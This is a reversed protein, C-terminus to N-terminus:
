PFGGAILDVHEAPPSGQADGGVRPVPANHKHWEHHCPQCLWRVALPKNYDDHHGQIPSRGDKYPRGEGGCASCVAPRVLVGRRLAYEVKNHAWDEGYVGGRHFHNDDGYRRQPRMPIGNSKFRQWLAQRGVPFREAVAALSLGAAYLAVADSFQEDTLRPVEAEKAFPGRVTRVDDYVVAGPFRTRLLERRFPDSECLWSHRWGARHLGWALLGGGDFLGGCTPADSVLAAAFRGRRAHSRQAERM